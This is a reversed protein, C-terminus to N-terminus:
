RSRVEVFPRWMDFGIMGGTGGDGVVVVRRIDRGSFDVALTHQIRIDVVREDVACLGVAEGRSGSVVFVVGVQSRTRAARRM